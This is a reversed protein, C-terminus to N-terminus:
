RRFGNPICRTSATSSNAAPILVVFPGEVCEPGHRVIEVRMLSGMRLGRPLMLTNYKAAINEAPKHFDCIRGGLLFIPFSDEPQCLDSSLSKSYAVVRRNAYLRNCSWVTGFHSCRCVGHHARFGIVMRSRTRSSWSGPKAFPFFGRQILTQKMLIRDINRFIHRKQYINKEVVLFVGCQLRRM